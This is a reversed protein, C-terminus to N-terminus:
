LVFHVLLGGAGSKNAQRWGGWLCVCWMSGAERQGCAARDGDANNTCGFTITIIKKRERFLINAKKLSRQEVQVQKQQRFRWTQTQVSDGREWEPSELWSCRLRLPGRGHWWHNPLFIQGDWVGRLTYSGARGMVLGASDAGRALVESQSVIVEKSNVKVGTLQIYVYRLMIIKPELWKHYAQLQINLQVTAIEMTLLKM